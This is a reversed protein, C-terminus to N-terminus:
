EPPRPDSPRPPAGVGPPPAVLGTVRIYYGDPDVVRFDTLGWPQAVLASIDAQGSAVARAHLAAVDEVVVVLEVGLGSRM